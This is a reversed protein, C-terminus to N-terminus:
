AKVRHIGGREIAEVNVVQTIAAATFREAVRAEELNDDSRVRINHNNDVFDVGTASGPCLEPKDDFAEIIGFVVIDAINRFWGGRREYEEAESNGRTEPFAAPRLKRINAAVSDRM